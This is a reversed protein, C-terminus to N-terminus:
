RPSPGLVEVATSLGHLENSGGFVYVADAIATAGFWHRPSPMPEHSSWTDTGPEYREVVRLSRSNADRGGVLFFAEGVRVCSHGLRALPAPAASAWANAAVDYVFTRDDYDGSGEGGFVFIRGGLECSAADSIPEPAPVGESWGSAPDFVDVRNTREWYPERTPDPVSPEGHGGIVYIRGGVVESSFTYRPGPMPERSSWSDTEADYIQVTNDFGRRGAYGGIVYIKEGISHAALDYLGILLPARSSWTDSAPEYARVASYPNESYPPVSEPSGEENDHETHGGLVYVVGAHAVAAHGSLGESMAARVSWPNGHGVEGEPALGLPTDVAAPTEPQFPAVLEADGGCALTWAALSAMLGLSRTAVDHMVAATAGLM